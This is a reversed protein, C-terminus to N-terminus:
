EVVGCHDLRITLRVSLTVGPKLHFQKVPSDACDIPRHPAAILVYNGPKTSPFNVMGNEDATARQIELTRTDILVATARPWIAGTADVVTASITAGSQNGRQAGASAAFVTSILLGFIVPKTATRM